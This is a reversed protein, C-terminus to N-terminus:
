FAIVVGLGTLALGGSIYSTWALQQQREFAQNLSYTGPANRMVQKQHLALGATVGSVIAAGASTFLVPKEWKGPTRKELVMPPPPDMQMTQTPAPAPVPASIAAQPASLSANLELTTGAPVYAIRGWAM